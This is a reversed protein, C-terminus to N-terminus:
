SHLGLYRLLGKFLGKYAMHSLISDVRAYSFIMLRYLPIAVHKQVLGCCAIFVPESKSLYKYITKAHRVKRAYNIIGHLAHLYFNWSQVKQYINASTQNPYVTDSKKSTSPNGVRLTQYAETILKFKMGDKASTNKDPHYELALKRYADRIEPIPAGKRIGLLHYCQDSNM